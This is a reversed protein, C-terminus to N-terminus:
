AKVRRRFSIAGVAGLLLLMSNPEPVASIDGTIQALGLADVDSILTRRGPGKAFPQMLADGHANPNLHGGGAETTQLVSGALPLDDRLTMNPSQFDGGTTWGLAHGIEHLAITYLDFRGVADGTSTTFNRGTNMSGAGLDQFTESYGGFESNDLPTSDAFWAVDTTFRIYATNPAKSPLQTSTLASGLETSGRPQWTVYLDLTRNGDLRSLWQDTATNVIDLLSGGGVINTPAAGGPGGFGGPFPGAQGEGVFTTNVVIAANAIPLGVLCVAAFLLFSMRKM